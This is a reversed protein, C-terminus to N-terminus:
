RPLAVCVPSGTRFGDAWVARESPEYGRCYHSPAIFVEPQRRPSLVAADATYEEVIQFGRVRPKIDLLHAGVSPPSVAMPGQHNRRDMEQADVCSLLYFHCNLTTSPSLLENNCWMVPMIHTWCRMFAVHVSDVVARQFAHQRDLTASVTCGCNTLSTPRFMTGLQRSIATLLRRCGNM